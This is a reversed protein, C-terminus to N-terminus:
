AGGAGAGAEGIERAFLAKTEDDLVDDLTAARGTTMNMVAFTIEAVAATKGDSARTIEQRMVARRSEATAMRSRIVATDLDALPRKYVINVGAVVLGFGRAPLAALGPATRETYDWRAEELFELYRANNVHGYADCHFNRVRIRYEHSM